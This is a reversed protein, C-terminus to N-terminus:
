CPREKDGQIGADRIARDGFADRVIEPYRSRVKRVDLLGKRMQEPVEDPSPDEVLLWEVVAPFSLCLKRAFERAEENRGLAKAKGYARISAILSVLYASRRRALDERRHDFGLISLTERAGEDDERVPHYHGTRADFRWREWLRFEPVSPDLFGVHYRSGKFRSNCISCALLFNNWLFADGPYKSKPKVHDIDWAESDECYMCRRPANCMGRLTAEIELFAAEGARSGKKSDWLSDATKTRAEPGAKADVRAQLKALHERTTAALPRRVIRKM